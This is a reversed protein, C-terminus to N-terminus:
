AMRRRRRAVTLALGLGLIGAIVPWAWVPWSPDGAGRTAATRPAVNSVTPGDSAAEPATAPFGSAILFRLLKPSGHYWGAAIPIPTPQYRGVHQGPPTYTWPGGDAYPYVVQHLLTGPAWDLRFRGQYAPGLDRKSVGVAGLVKVKWADLGLQWIPNREGDVSVGDAPLGPGTFRAVKFGKAAAPFAFLVLVLAAAALTLSLRRM